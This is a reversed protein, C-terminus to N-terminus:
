VSAARDNDGRVVQCVPKHLAVDPVEKSENFRQRATEVRFVGTAWSPCYGLWVRRTTVQVIADSVSQATVPDVCSSGNWM